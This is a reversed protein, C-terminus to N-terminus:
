KVRRGFRRLKAEKTREDASDNLAADVLAHMGLCKRCVKVLRAFYDTQPLKIKCNVCVAIGFSKAPTAPPEQALQALLPADKLDVAASTRSWNPLRSIRSKELIIRRQIAKSDKSESQNKSITNM